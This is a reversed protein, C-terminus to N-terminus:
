IADPHSELAQRLERWRYFDPHLELAAGLVAGERVVSSREYV